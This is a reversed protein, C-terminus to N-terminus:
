TYLTKLHFFPTLTGTSAEAERAKLDQQEKVDAKGSYTDKAAFDPESLKSTLHLTM